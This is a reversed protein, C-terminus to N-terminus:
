TMVLRAWHDDIKFVLEVPSAPHYRVGVFTGVGGHNRRRSFSKRAQSRPCPQQQDSRLSSYLAATESFEQEDPWKSLLRSFKGDEWRARGLNAINREVKKRRQEQKNPKGHEKPEAAQEEDTAERQKRSAALQVMRAATRESEHCGSSDALWGEGGTLWIRPDCNGVFISDTVGRVCNSVNAERPGDRTGGFQM